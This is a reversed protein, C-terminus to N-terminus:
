PRRRPNDRRTTSPRTATDPQALQRVREFLLVAAAAAVNLSEIGRALPISVSEHAAAALAPGLGTGEAGFAFAIRGTLDIAHPAPGGRGAAAVVRGRFEGAARVLDAHPRIQLAFHAGMAARLTRPSWPDACQASLLVADAGAAAASRIITGVNGPDQVGDLMVILPGPHGAAPLQPIDILALIGTPTQVPAIQAFLADSFCIQESGRARELLAEVESNGRAGDSVAILRPLARELYSAVLHAGDLLTRNERRREAASSALARLTRFHANTRAAVRPLDRPM